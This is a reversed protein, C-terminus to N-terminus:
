IIPKKKKLASCCMPCYVKHNLIKYGAEDFVGDELLCKYNEKENELFNACKYKQQIAITHKNNEKEKEKEEELPFSQVVQVNSLFTMLILGIVLPISELSIAVFLLMSSCLSFPLHDDCFM